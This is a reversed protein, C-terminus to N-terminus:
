NKILLIETGLSAQLHPCHWFTDTPAKLFHSESKLM